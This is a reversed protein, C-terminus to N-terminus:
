QQNLAILEPRGDGDLDAILLRAVIWGPETPFDVKSAFSSQDLGGPFSRNEFISIIGDHFVVLDPKSDGNVDGLAVFAHTTGEHFDVRPALSNGTFGGPSTTNRFVSAIGSLGVGVACDLKGDGDLDGLKITQDPGTGTPFEVKAAFSSADIVGDTSVNRLLALTSSVYNMVAIDPKGDGDLDGVALFDPETGVLYNIRQAVAFNGPSGTNRYVSVTNGSGHGNNAVVLDPKGDGNFDQIALGHPGVSAALILPSAFSGADIVGRASTNRYISISDGFHNAVGLDLRGDGDLDGLAVAIPNQGTG